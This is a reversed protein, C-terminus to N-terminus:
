PEDPVAGSACATLAVGLSAIHGLPITVGKRTPTSEDDSAYERIDLFDAGCYRRLRALTVSRTKACRWIPPGDFDPCDTM